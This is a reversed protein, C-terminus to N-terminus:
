ALNQKYNAIKKVVKKTKFFVYCNQLRIEKDRTRLPGLNLRVNNKIYGYNRLMKSDLIRIFIIGLTIGIFFTHLYNFFNFYLLM